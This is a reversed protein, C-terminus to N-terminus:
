WSSHHISLSNGNGIQSFGIRHGSGLQVAIAQNSNGVIRGVISSQSGSQITAFLNQPGTASLRVSHGSGEQKISLPNIDSVGTHLEQPRPWISISPFSVDPSQLTIFVESGVSDQVISLHDGSVSGFLYLTNGIDEASAASWMSLAGILTMGMFQKTRGM